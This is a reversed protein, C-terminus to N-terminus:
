DRHQREKEGAACCVSVVGKAEVPRFNEARERADRDDPDHSGQQEDFSDRPQDRRLNDVALEHKDDRCNAYHHVNHQHLHEIVPMPMPVAVRVTMTVRVTMAVAVAVSM